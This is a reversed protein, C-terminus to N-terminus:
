DDESERGSWTLSWVAVADLVPSLRQGDETLSYSVEIPPGSVVERHVLKAAELEKLRQSLMAPAIGSVAVQLESFRLPGALLADIIVGNWRRGILEVAAHFGRCARRDVVFGGVEIVM